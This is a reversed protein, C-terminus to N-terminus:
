TYLESSIESLAQEAKTLASDIVEENHAACLFSNHHPHLFVGKRMIAACFDEQLQFGPDNEFRFFPAAAPGSFQLPVRHKRSLREMGEAFRKGARDLQNPVHDRELAELTTLAAVMPVAQNWYSGTLYVKSAANKLFGKGVTAAIPYGNGLAKCYCAIDPELEVVQHSGHVSLRFGARVDDLLVLVGHQRCLKQVEEMFGPEPWVQQAYVPHHYPSLVLAAVQDRHEHLLREISSADNWHFRHIHYRDEPIIGAHGPSCWPHTGHYAGHAMLIKPRGTYERAVQVAWSTMDSGNKGFVSWDAVDILSVLRKALEPMVPTPHNMCDGKEQQKRAAEEVEPHRHGLVVPGYGCMFDIYRNGDVDWYYCGDAETAYYPSRGPLASIPSHHGYIGGPICQAAEEFLQLSKAYGRHSETKDGELQNPEESM